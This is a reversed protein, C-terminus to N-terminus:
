RVVRPGAERLRAYAALARARAAAHDVIPAPYTRGLVVGAEALELPAAQWPAHLHRDSLRALEPVWRRVYAGAPDFTQGQKVPNFIRFYPAADAGCGAVWQWSAANNALDADVLTDWFWAEGQQWPQLLHKVLFSAVVMRVRNHMWGTAWLERMGADVLPYGTRGRQWARLAAADAAWPFRAFAPQLPALPLDPAQLLLHASFERWGLERLFAEAGPSDGRGAVAHWVQRPSLEGWRLRPSLRSTGPEAPRDRGDAYGALAGVLFASLAQRAAPEGPQWAARLGGAWDPRSPLLALDALAPGGAQVDAFRLAPAALPRAPAGAALCARWFPTFVRFGGGGRTAIRGPPFLLDHAFPRAARGDRELAAAVAADEAIGWPEIRANWHVARAGLRAALRPVVDAARGRALVLRGGLSADLAALAHHLWWLAAGGPAWPGAAEDELVYLPVVPGDAAALAPHDALRLDNRFWVIVPAPPSM